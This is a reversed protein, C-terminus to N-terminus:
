KIILIVYTLKYRCLIAENVNYFINFTILFLDLKCPSRGGFYSITLIQQRDASSTPVSVGMPLQQHFLRCGRALLNRPTKRSSHHGMKWCIGSSIGLLLVIKEKEKTVSSIKTTTTTKKLSYHAAKHHSREGPITFEDHHLLLTRIGLPNQLVSM